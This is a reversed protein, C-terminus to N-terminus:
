EEPQACSRRGRRKGFPAGLQPNPPLSNGRRRLVHPQPANPDSPCTPPTKWFGCVPPGPQIPSASTARAPASRDAPAVQLSRTPGAPRRKARPTLQAAQLEHRQWLVSAALTATWSSNAGVWGRFASGPRQVPPCSLSAGRAGCRRGVHAPMSGALEGVFASAVVGLWVSGPAVQSRKTAPSTADKNSCTGSAVCTPRRQQARSVAGGM